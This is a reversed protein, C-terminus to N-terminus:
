VLDQYSDVTGTLAPQDSADRRPIAAGGVTGDVPTWSTGGDTSV